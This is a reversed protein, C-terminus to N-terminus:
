LRATADGPGAPGPLHEQGSRGQRRVRDERREPVSEAQGHFTGKTPTGHSQQAGVYDSILVGHLHDVEHQLVRAMLGSAEFHVPAGTPALGRVEVAIEREVEVYVGPLSLCGETMRDTRGTPTLTPDVVCVPGEGIDAVIVQVLLGVQPAALGIGEYRHMLELMDRALDAVKRDVARMPECMARLVSDPYLRLRLPRQSLDAAFRGPDSSPSHSRESGRPM